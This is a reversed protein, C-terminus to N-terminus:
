ELLTEARKCQNVLKKGQEESVQTVVAQGTVLGMHWGADFFYNGGAEVDLKAKETNWQSIAVVTHPGPECTFLYYTGPAINGFVKGDIAIQFTAAGGFYGLGRAVYISAKGDPPTFTKGAADLDASALPITACGVLLALAVLIMYHYIKM